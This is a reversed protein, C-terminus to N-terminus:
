EAGEQTVPQPSTKKSQHQTSGNNILRRPLRTQEAQLQTYKSGLYL